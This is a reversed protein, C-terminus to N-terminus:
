GQKGLIFQYNGINFEESLSDYLSKPELYMYGSASYFTIEGFYPRDNVYFFDVRAHPFPEALREAYEYLIQICEPLVAEEEKLPTMQTIGNEIFRLKEDFIGRKGESHKGNKDALGVNYYLLKVKGDFCFFNLDVLPTGDQSELYEECIIKPEINKYAWERTERYYNHKLGKSFYSQLHKIRDDTLTEKYILANMGSSHNCKMYFKEPLISFDIKEFSDYVGYQKKLLKELGCFKVYERAMVKDACATMLSNRYNVKYWQFKADLGVPHLLDLKKGTLVYYKKELFIEDSLGDYLGAKVFCRFRVKRDSLVQGLIRLIRKIM